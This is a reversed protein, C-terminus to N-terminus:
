IINLFRKLKKLNFHTCILFLTHKMGQNKKLSELLITYNIFSVFVYMYKQGLYSGYFGPSMRPFSLITVTLLSLLFLKHQCSFHVAIMESFNPFSKFSLYFFLVKSKLIGTNSFDLVVKEYNLVKKMKALNTNYKKRSIYSDRKM